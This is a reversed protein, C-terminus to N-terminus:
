LGIVKSDARGAALFPKRSTVKGPSRLNKDLYGSETRGRHEGGPKPGGAEGQKM